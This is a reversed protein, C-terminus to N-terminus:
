SLVISVKDHETRAYVLQHFAQFFAQATIRALPDRRAPKGLLTPVLLAPLLAINPPAIFCDNTSDSTNKKPTAPLANASM